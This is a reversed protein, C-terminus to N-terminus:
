RESFFSSADFVRDYLSGNLDDAFLANRVLLDFLSNECKRLIRHKGSPQDIPQRLDKTGNGYAVHALDVKHVRKGSLGLLPLPLADRHLSLRYEHLADLEGLIGPVAIPGTNM